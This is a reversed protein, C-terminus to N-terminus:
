LHKAPITNQKPSTDIQVGSGWGIGPRTDYMALLWVWILGFGAGDQKSIAEILAQMYGTAFARGRHGWPPDVHTHPVHDDICFSKYGGDHYIKM